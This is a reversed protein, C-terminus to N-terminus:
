WEVAGIAGTTAPAGSPVSDISLLYILWEVQLNYLHIFTDM